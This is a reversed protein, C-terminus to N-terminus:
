QYYERVDEEKNNGKIVKIYCYTMIGTIVGWTLIMFIWGGTTM